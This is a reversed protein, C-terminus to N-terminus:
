RAELASMRAILNEIKQNQNEIIIQQEKIAEILVPILRPYDISRADQCDDSLKWLDVVEPVIKEVDQAILGIIPVNLKYGDRVSNVFENWEYKVGQLKKVKELSNELPTINKKFRIDSSTPFATAHINGNVDLKYSPSVGIGVDGGSTVRVHTTSSGGAGLYLTGSTTYCYVDNTQDQRRLGHSDSNLQFGGYSSNGSGSYISGNARFGSVTYNNNQNLSDASTATGTVNGTLPGSFATALVTGNVELKQSPSTTGIGVNGTGTIRLKETDVTSNSAGTRTWFALDTDQNNATTNPRVAKIAASGYFNSSTSSLPAFSLGVSSGIAITTNANHQLNVACRWSASSDDGSFFCGAFPSGNNATASVVDLKNAPSTTGIGLGTGNLTMRAGLVTDFFTVDATASNISLYDNTGFNSARAIKFSNSSDSGVLWVGTGSRFYETAVVETSNIRVRTNSTTTAVELKQGPSTTGIGVNGNVDITLRYVDQTRDFVFWQNSNNAQLEWSNGSSPKFEIGAASANSQLKIQTYGANVVNLGVYGSILSPSTTGIGVAGNNLIRVREGLNGNDTTAFVLGGTTGGGLRIGSIRAALAAEDGITGASTELDISVTSGITGDGNRLILSKFNTASSGAISLKSAPSTTGIGVNGNQLITFDDGNSGVDIFYRGTDDLLGSYAVYAGNGVSWQLGSWAGTGTNSLAIVSQASYLHLKRTPSSTGIGVNGDNNIRVKETTGTYLLLSGQNVGTRYAGIQAISTESGAYNNFIIFGYDNNSRNRIQLANAGSTSSVIDLPLNPSTTGIGLGTSNLTMRTGGAGDYWSFVGLQNIQYQILSNVFFRIPRTAVSLFDINSDDAGIYAQQTTANNAYFRLATSNDSRGRIIIGTGGTNSQVDLPAIPSATGIGVNGSSDIRIRETGPLSTNGNYIADINYNAM